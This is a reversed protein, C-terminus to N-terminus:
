IGNGQLQALMAELEAIKKAAEDGGLPLKGHELIHKIEGAETGCSIMYGTIRKLQAKTLQNDELPIEINISITGDSSDFEWTGFKTDNNRQLLYAMLINVYKHNKASIVNTEEDLLRGSMEFLEGDERARVFYALRNEASGGASIIVSDEEKLHHGFELEEFISAIEQLTMAMYLGKKQHKLIVKILSMNHRSYKKKYCFATKKCFTVFVIIESKV